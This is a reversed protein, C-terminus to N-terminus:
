TTAPEIETTQIPTRKAWTAFGFGILGYTLLGLSLPLVTGDFTQDLAFGLLAGGTAGITGTIAAATGAIAAMPEMALTNLNPIILGYSGLAMALLLMFLWFNPIGNASWALLTLVAAMAVFLMYAANVIAGMPTSGVLKANALIAVAIFAATGGFIVPFLEPRGYVNSIILESTALYSLMAGFTFMRAMTYGMTVRNTVVIKGARYIALPSFAIRNAPDLTEPLRLTWFAVLVGFGAAIVFLWRWHAIELVAAGLAPMFIPILLFVAMIFSMARAMAAGEFSDRVISLTVVRPSAAGIGWIFRSLIVLELTPAVASALAAVVYIALGVYLTPKRGFRDAFPGYIVQALAMGLFFSTLIAGVRTSDEPVGFDTRIHGFAPLMLDISLAAAAMLTSMM